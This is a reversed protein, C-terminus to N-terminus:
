HVHIQPASQRPKERNLIEAQQLLAPIHDWGHGDALTWRARLYGQPDILLEMHHAISGVPEVGRRPQFMGYAAAVRPDSEATVSRDVGGMNPSATAADTLPLAIVRVRIQDFAAKAASLVRLRPLSEPLTYLVLLVVRGRQQELSEQKNRAVQFTFDPAVIRRSSEVSDNLTRAMTEAAAQARLFNILDWLRDESIRGSFGPMPTGPIGHQLWWLIDGERHHLLHETLNAPKVGLSHAAPGDGDGHLGHCAACHEAYVPMGRAISDTTYRIPSHFYTTPHAPVALQRACLVVAAVLATVGIVTASRQRMAAGFVTLALAAILAGWGAASFRGWEPSEQWDLTYSFPWVPQVHLAPVTIGLTGVICVIILGLLMEAIANRRLQRLMHAPSASMRSSHSRRPTLRMRNVAALSLMAGFLALKLLLMHGYVTGLLAPVSGVTYWANVVGTLLLTGVSAMGLASFRRVIHATVDLTGGNARGARALAVVLPPLAGLWAGAALLHAADASVHVIRDVGQEAAAHGTWALTALLAAALLWTGPALILSTPEDRARHQLLLMVVLAACIASRGTWVHGFSTQDLVAGFTQRDLAYLPMGSMTAAQVALWGVGSVIAIALSWGAVQLFRRQLALWENRLRAPSVRLAPRAVWFLFAFEGFLAIVAIFHAARLAIILANM